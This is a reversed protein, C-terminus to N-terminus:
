PQLMRSEHKERFDWTGDKNSNGIGSIGLEVKRPIESEKSVIGGKVTEGREPNGKGLSIEFGEKKPWRGRRM